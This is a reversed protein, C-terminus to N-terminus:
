QINMYFQFVVPLLYQYVVYFINNSVNGFSIRTTYIYQLAFLFSKLPWKISMKNYSNPENNVTVSLHVTGKSYQTDLRVTPYNTMNM